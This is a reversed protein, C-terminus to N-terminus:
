VDPPSLAPPPSTAPIRARSPTVSPRTITAAPRSVTVVGMKAV